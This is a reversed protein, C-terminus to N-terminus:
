PPSPKTRKDIEVRANSLDGKLVIAPLKPDPTLTYGLSKLELGVAVLWSRITIKNYGYSKKPDMGENMKMGGDLSFGPRERVLVRRTALFVAAKQKPSSLAPAKSSAKQAKAAPKAGAKKAVKPKKSGTVKPKGKSKSGM